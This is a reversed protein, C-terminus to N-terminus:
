GREAPRNTPRVLVQRRVTHVLLHVLMQRDRTPFSEWGPLGPGPDAPSTPAVRDDVVPLPLALQRMQSVEARWPRKGSVVCSPPSIACPPSASRHPPPEPLTPVARARRSALEAEGVGDDAAHVLFRSRVAPTRGAVGRGM